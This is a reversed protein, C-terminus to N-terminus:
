PIEHRLTEGGLGAGRGQGLVSVAHEGPLTQAKGAEGGAAVTPGPASGDLSTSHVLPQHPNGRPDSPQTLLSGPIVQSRQHFGPFLALFVVVGLALRM